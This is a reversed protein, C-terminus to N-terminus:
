RLALLFPEFRLRLPQNSLAINSFLDFVAVSRLQKDANYVLAYRVAGDVQSWEAPDAVVRTEGAVTTIAVSTLVEGGATYGPGAAEQVATYTQTATTLAAEPRYLAIKLTDLVLDHVGALVEERFSTTMAQRM